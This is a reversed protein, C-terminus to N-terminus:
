IRLPRKIHEVFSATVPYRIDITLSAKNENLSILGVNFSLKGSVDDSIALGFSKGDTEEKIYKQYFDLFPHSLGMKDAEKYLMNVAKLSPMSGQGPVSAHGM